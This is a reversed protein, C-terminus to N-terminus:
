DLKVSLYLKEHRAVFSRVRKGYVYVALLLTLGTRRRAQAQPFRVPSPRRRSLSTLASRARPALIASSVTLICIASAGALVGMTDPIGMTLIWDVSFQTFGYLM